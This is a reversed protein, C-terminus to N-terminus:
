PRSHISASGTAINALSSRMVESLRVENIREFWSTRQKQGGETDAPLMTRAIQEVTIRVFNKQPQGGIWVNDSGVDVFIVNVYFAPLFDYLKTIAKAIGKRQEVTFTNPNAYIRWLPM